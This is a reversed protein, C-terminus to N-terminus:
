EARQPLVDARRRPGRVGGDARLPGPRLRVYLGRPQARRAQGAVARRPGPAEDDAAPAQRPPDRDPLDGGRGALYAHGFPEDGEASRPDEEDTRPVQGQGEPARAQQAEPGAQ